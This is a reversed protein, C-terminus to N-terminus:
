VHARGIQVSPGNLMPPGLPVRARAVARPCFPRATFPHLKPGCPARRNRHELPQGFPEGGRFNLQLIRFGFHRKAPRHQKGTAHQCTRCMVVPRGRLCPRLHRFSCPVYRIPWGRFTATVVGGQWGKKIGNFIHNLMIYINVVPISFLFRM